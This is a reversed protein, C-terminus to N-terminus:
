ARRLQQLPARPHHRFPLPDSPPLMRIPTCKL